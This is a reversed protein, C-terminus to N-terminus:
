PTATPAAAVADKVFRLEVLTGPKADVNTKMQQSLVYGGAAGLLGGHHKGAAVHGALGAGLVMGATRWHHTKADFAGINLLRVDVPATTGDQLRIDDFVLTLSPKKGMGAPSVNELHGEITAGHLAPDHRFLTDTQLLSFTDGDHSKNTAVEQQLKGAFRTGAAVVVRGEAAVRGPTIASQTSVNSSRACGGLAIAVVLGAGIIVHKM